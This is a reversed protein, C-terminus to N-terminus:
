KKWRFAVFAQGGKGGKNDKTGAGGEGCNTANPYNQEDSSAMGGVYASTPLLWKFFPLNNWGDNVSQKQYGYGDNKDVSTKGSIATLTIDGEKVTTNVPTDLQPDGGNPVTIFISGEKGTAPLKDIVLQGGGGDGGKALTITQGKGAGGAGALLVEFEINIGDKTRLAEYINKPTTKFLAYGYIEDEFYEDSKIPIRKNPIVGNDNMAVGGTATFGIGKFTDVIDGVTDVLLMGEEDHPLHEVYTVKGTYPKGKLDHFVLNLNANLGVKSTTATIKGISSGKSVGDAGQPIGQSFGQVKGETLYIRKTNGDVSFGYEYILNM